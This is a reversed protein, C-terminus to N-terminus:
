GKDDGKTNSSGTSVCVWTDTDHADKVERVIRVDLLDFLRTRFVTTLRGSGRGEGGGQWTCCSVPSQCRWHLHTVCPMFTNATTQTHKGVTVM